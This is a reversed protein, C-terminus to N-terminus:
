DKVYHNLLANARIERIDQYEYQYYDSMKQVEAEFEEESQATNAIIQQLQAMIAEKKANEMESIANPNTIVVKFDFLRKLEEGRLVNLSKNIIPYHHIKEPIFGADLNEPNVIMGLDQMHLIGNTLDYNIKKHRVSNRVPSYNFYTRGEAWDLHKKRWEKNKKSFSLRQSPLNYITPM